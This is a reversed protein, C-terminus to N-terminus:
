RIGVEIKAIYWQVVTKLRCYRYSSTTEVCHRSGRKFGKAPLFNVGLGRTRLQTHHRHRRSVQWWYADDYRRKLTVSRTEISHSSSAMAVTIYGGRLYVVLYESAVDDSSLMSLLIGNPRLARFSLRLAFRCRVWHELIRIKRKIWIKFFM